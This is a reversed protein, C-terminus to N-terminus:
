PTDGEEDEAGGNWDFLEANKRSETIIALALKLDVGTAKDKDKGKGTVMLGNTAQFFMDDLRRQRIAAHSMECEHLSAAARERSKFFLKRLAPSLHAGALRTPDYRTIQQYTPPFGFEVQFARVTEMVGAGGGLSMVIFRKQKPTLVNSM